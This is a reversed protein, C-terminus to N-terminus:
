HFGHALIDSDFLTYNIALLFRLVFFRSYLFYWNKWSYCFVSYIFMVIVKIV